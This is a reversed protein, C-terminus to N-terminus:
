CSVAGRCLYLFRCSPSEYLLLGDKWSKRSGAFSFARGLFILRETMHVIYEIWLQRKAAEGASHSVATFATWTFQQHEKDGSNIGM